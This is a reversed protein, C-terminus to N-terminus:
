GVGFGFLTLIYFSPIINLRIQCLINNKEHRGSVLFNEFRIINFLYELTTSNLENVNDTTASARDHGYQVRCHRVTTYQEMRYRATSYQVM